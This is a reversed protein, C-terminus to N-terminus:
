LWAEEIGAAEPRFSDMDLTEGQVGMPDHTAAIVIGGRATHDTILTALAARNDADLGVTPEDMLWIQRPVLAFRMLASRHRQGSSFYQVPEDLMGALGFVDAAQEISAASVAAGAMLRGYYQANDRLSFNTKLGNLHGLLLLEDTPIEEYGSDGTQYALEGSEPPLFGAFVRLFTSKGSGNKGKLTLFDGARVDFDLRDFVLRGGRRCALDRGNISINSSYIPRSDNMTRVSAFAEARSLRRSSKDCWGAFTQWM